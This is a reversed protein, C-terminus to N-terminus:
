YFSSSLCHNKYKYKFFCRINFNEALFLHNKMAKYILTDTITTIKLSIKKLYLYTPHTIFCM